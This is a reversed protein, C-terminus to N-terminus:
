QPRPLDINDFVSVDGLTRALILAGESTALTGLALTRRASASAAWDSQEFAGILWGITEEFFRRTEAVVEPPLDAIEAGLMGCLCMLNEEVLSARTLAHLRDQAATASKPAEEVPGLAAMFTATYRRAVAAGLAGKTPFHYHVSASKVGVADAIERFSVGNYGRNRIMADATELIRHKMDQATM